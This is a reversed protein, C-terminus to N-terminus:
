WLATTDIVRDCREEIHLKNFYLKELPIWMQIFQELKEEGNRKLIRKRQVDSDVKLFIKYDYADMLTPHLSYTGEVITINKPKVHITEGLSRTICSYPQYSVTVRRQIGNLIEEKFREYHVNGGPELLREKTKMEFPLFYDDMHFVNCDYANAFFNALHSKGGACQGDIAVILPKDNKMLRDVDEILGIYKEYM